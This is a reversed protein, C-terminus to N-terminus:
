RSQAAEHRAHTIRHCWDIKPTLQAYLCTLLPALPEKQYPYLEEALAIGRSENGRWLAPEFAIALSEVNSLLMLQQKNLQQLIECATAPLTGELVPRIATKFTEAFALAESRRSQLAKSISPSGHSIPTEILNGKSNRRILSGGMQALATFCAAGENGFRWSSNEDSLMTNPNFGYDTLLQLLEPLKNTFQRGIHTYCAEDQWRQNPDAGHELLLAAFATNCQRIAQLLPPLVGDPGEVPAGAELLVQCFAHHYAMTLLGSNSGSDRFCLAKYDVVRDPDTLMATLTAIHEPTPQHTSLFTFVDLTDRRAKEFAQPTPYHDPHPRVELQM